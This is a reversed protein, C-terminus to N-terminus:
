SYGGSAISAALAIQGLHYTVHVWVRSSTYSSSVFRGWALMADSTFFLSAGTIVFVRRLPTWTPRFLTGWASFLMLGLVVSYLAVPVLLSERNGRRLGAAIGRYLVVGIIVVPVLLSFAAGPLMTPNLGIIYCVHALLFAALGPLFCQRDPLMLFVDGILSFALGPLFFRAQWIDHPARTLLWAGILVVVMTAPKLIYGVRKWRRAVALWDLAALVLSIALVVYAHGIVMSDM